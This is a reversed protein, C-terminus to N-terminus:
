SGFRMRIPSLFIVWSNGDLSGELHHRSWGRAYSPRHELGHIMVAVPERRALALLGAATISGDHGGIVRSSCGVYVGIEPARYGSLVCPATLGLGHMEAAATAYARGAVLQVNSQQTVMRQQAVLQGVLAVAVLAGVPYRWRGTPALVLWHVAVGVPLALLALAPLLFRPASYGILLLYPISLSTGAIVPILVTALGGARRVAFAAVIAAVPILLVWVTDIPPNAAVTCPRCLLPGDLTQWHQLLVSPHWGIGGEIQSARALRAPLGGFRRYAEIVWPMAGLGAGVAILAIVRLNRRRGPLVAAMLAMPLATWAADSPRMLAAVALGVPLAVLAVRDRQGSGPRASVLRAFGGVAAVAGFAVWLNPMLEAGYFRTIWLGAFCVAAAVVALPPLVKFWIRYVLYLALASLVTLYIRLAPVSSTALVLPEALWSIGRARPASFFAAPVSRSVQSFYVAEDWGLNVRWLQFQSAGYAIATAILAWNALHRDRPPPASPAIDAPRPGAPAAIVTLDPSVGAM